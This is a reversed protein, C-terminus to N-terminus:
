AALEDASLSYLDGTGERAQVLLGAHEPLLRTIYFRALKERPTGQGALAARLHVWAGLVRAFGRQYPVAGGFRSNMDDQSALWETTERLTESAQWVAEALEPYAGRAEEACAEIEDMLRFAADGGDMMKRGVLEMAQIGNTGEYIATVRVDSRYGLVALAGADGDKILTRLAHRTMWALEKPTQRGQKAWDKLVTVVTAPEEKALDNLHNAVSRTVFRTGDAHLADLFPLRQDTSLKVAKAWPLKPRTGESVLRRVHYNDDRAWLALRALTEKPWRNLFPRIYFEMSFRQTAAHLLDLARDRDYDHEYVMRVVLEVAAPHASYDAHSGSVCLLAAVGAM